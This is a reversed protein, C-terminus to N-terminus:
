KTQSKRHANALEAMASVHKNLSQVAADLKEQPIPKSGDEGLAQHLQGKRLGYVARYNSAM